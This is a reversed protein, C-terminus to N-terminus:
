SIMRHGTAQAPM